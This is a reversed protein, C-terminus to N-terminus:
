ALIWKSLNEEELQEEDSELECFTTKMTQQKATIAKDKIKVM